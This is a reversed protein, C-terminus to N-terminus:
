GEAVVVSSRSALLHKNTIGCAGMPPSASRRQLEQFSRLLLYLGGLLTPGVACLQSVLCDWTSRGVPRRCACIGCLIFAPSM